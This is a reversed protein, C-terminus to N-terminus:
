KGLSKETVLLNNNFHNNTKIGKQMLQINQVAKYLYKASSIKIIRDYKDDITKNGYYIAYNNQNENTHLICANLNDEGIIHINNEVCFQAKNKVGIILKDYSIMRDDLQNITYKLMPKIPLRSSGLVIMWGDKILKEIEPKFYDNDIKPKMRFFKDICDISLNRNSYILDSMNYTYANKGIGDTEITKNIQTHKNTNKHEKKIFYNIINNDIKVIFNDIDLLIVKKNDIINLKNHCDSVIDDINNDSFTTYKDGKKKIISM